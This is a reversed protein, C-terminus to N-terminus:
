RYILAAHLHIHFRGSGQEPDQALMQAQGARLIAASYRLAAGAGHVEIAPRRAGAASGYRAGRSFLDGGDFPERRLPIMGQLARPYLDFYRLAAVALGPLDHARRRQEFFSGVRGVLIDVAGHGSVDAAAPGVRANPAGDM